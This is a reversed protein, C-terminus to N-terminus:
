WLELFFEHLCVTKGTAARQWKAVVEGIGFHYMKDANAKLCLIADSISERHTLQDFAM